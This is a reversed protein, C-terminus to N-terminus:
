DMTQSLTQHLGLFSNLVDYFFAVFHITHFVDDHSEFIDLVISLLYLFGLLEKFATNSQERTRHRGDCMERYGLKRARQCKIIASKRASMAVHHRRSTAVHLRRSTTFQQSRCNTSGVDHSTSTAVHHRRSTATVEKSSRMSGFIAELLQEKRGM